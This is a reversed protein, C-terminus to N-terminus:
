KYKIFGKFVGIFHNHAIIFKKFNFLIFTLKALYKILDIILFHFLKNKKIVGGKGIAYSITKSIDYKIEPHCIGDINRFIKKENPNFHIYKYIYDSDEGSQFITPCGVGFNQDFVIRNDYKIFISSSCASSWFNFVSLNKDKTKKLIIRQNQDNIIPISLIMPNEEGLVYLVKNILDKSYTCDDDPFAM